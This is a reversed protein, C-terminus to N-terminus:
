LYAGLGSPFGNEHCYVHEITREGFRDGYVEVATGEDFPLNRDPDTPIGCVDCPAWRTTETESGGRDRPTASELDDSEHRGEANSAEGDTM